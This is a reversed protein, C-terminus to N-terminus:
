LGVNQYVLNNKNQSRASLYKVILPQKEERGFGEKCIEVGVMRAPWELAVRWPGEVNRALARVVPGPWGNAWWRNAPFSLLTVFHAIIVLALPRKQTLLEIYSEPVYFPWSITMVWDSPICLAEEYCEWLRDIAAAYAAREDEGGTLCANLERLQETAARADRLVPSRAGHMKHSHLVLDRVPGTKFMPMGMKWLILIRRMLLVKDLFEDLPDTSRAHVFYSPHLVALEHLLLLGSCVIVASCNEHTIGPKRRQAAKICQSQHKAALYTFRGQESPRLHALHLAALSLLNNLLFPFLQAQQPIAHQWLKRKRGDEALTLSTITAYHHILEMDESSFPSPGLSRELPANLCAAQSVARSLAQDQTKSSVGSTVGSLPHIYIKLNPEPPKASTPVQSNLGFLDEYDCRIRRKQCNRCRPPLEDCKIRRAKCQACGNRSKVHPRRSGNPGM